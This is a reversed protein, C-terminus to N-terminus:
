KHVKLAFCSHESRVRPPPAPPPEGADSALAAPRVRPHGDPGPSQDVLEDLSDDDM